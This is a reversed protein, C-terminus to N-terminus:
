CWPALEWTNIIIMKPGGVLRIGKAGMPFASRFLCEGIWSKFPNWRDERVPLRPLWLHKQFNTSCALISSFLVLSVNAM